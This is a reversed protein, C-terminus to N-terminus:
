FGPKSMMCIYPAPFRRPLFRVDRANIVSLRARARVIAEFM